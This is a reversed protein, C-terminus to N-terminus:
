LFGTDSTAVTSFTKGELQKASASGEAGKLSEEQSLVRVDEVSQAVNVLEHRGVVYCTVGARQSLGHRVNGAM